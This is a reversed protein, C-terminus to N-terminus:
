EVAFASRFRSTGFYIATRTASGEDRWAEATDSGRKGSSPFGATIQFDPLPFGLDYFWSAMAGTVESLWVERKKGAAAHRPSKSGRTGVMSKSKRPGTAPMM